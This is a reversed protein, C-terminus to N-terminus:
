TKNPPISNTIIIVGAIKNITQRESMICKVLLCDLTVEELPANKRMLISVTPLATAKVEIVVAILKKVNKTLSITGIRRKPKIVDTPTTKVSKIAM